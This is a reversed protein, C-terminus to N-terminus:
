KIVGKGYKALLRKLVKVHGANPQSLLKSKRSKRSSDMKVKLHGNRTQKKLIKGSKTIRIRKLLTKRTKMKPM